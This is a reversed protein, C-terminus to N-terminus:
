FCRKRLLEFNQFFHPLQLREGAGGGGRAWDKTKFDVLDERLRITNCVYCRLRLLLDRLKLQFM